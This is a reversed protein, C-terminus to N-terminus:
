RLVGVDLMWCRLIQRVKGARIDLNELINGRSQELWESSGLLLGLLQTLFCLRGRSRRGRTRTCGWASRWARRPTSASGQTARAQTQPPWATPTVRPLSLNTQFIQSIQKPFAISCHRWVYLFTPRFIVIPISSFTNVLIQWTSM